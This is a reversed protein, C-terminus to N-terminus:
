AVHAEKLIPLAMRVVEGPDIGKMAENNQNMEAVQKESYQEDYMLGFLEGRAFLIRSTEKLPRTRTHDTPGYLAILDKGLADALHMVGSDHCITLSAHQLLQLLETVSTKGTTDIIRDQSDLQELLPEVFLKRDGEDGVFVVPLESQELLGTIIKYSQETSISKANLTGNAAGPQLILFPQGKLGFQELVESGEPAKLTTPANRTLPERHFAELLDLNLDTEHRGPLIPVPILTPDLLLKRALALITKRRGLRAHLFRQPIRALRTGTTMTRGAADFSIFAARYQENSLNRFYKLQQSRPIDRPCKMVKDVHGSDQLFRVEEKHNTILDIGYEPYLERLKRLMPIKLVFNGLGTYGSILFRHNM